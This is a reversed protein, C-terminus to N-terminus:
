RGAVAGSKREELSLAYGQYGKPIRTLLVLQHSHRVVKEAVSGLLVQGLEGRAHTAMAVFLPHINRSYEEIQQAPEGVLVTREVKLLPYKSQLLSKIQELYLMADHRLNLIEKAEDYPTLPYGVGVPSLLLPSVPSVVEVLYLPTNLQSCIESAPVLCAEAALSGDLTAIVLPVRPNAITAEPQVEGKIAAEDPRLLIVPLCAHKVIGTAFSGMFLLSLGSRGHTTMVLLDAGEASVIDGLDDISIKYVVKTQVEESSFKWPKAPDTLINRMKILYDEPSVGAESDFYIAGDSDPPWLSVQVLLLKAKLLKALYYVYPLAKESLSSGDLAVAIRTIM